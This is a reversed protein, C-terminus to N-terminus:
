VEPELLARYIASKGSFVFSNMSVLGHVTLSVHTAISGYSGLEWSSPLISVKEQTRRCERSLREGGSLLPYRM